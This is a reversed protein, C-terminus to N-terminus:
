TARTSTVNFVDHEVCRGDCYPGCEPKKRVVDRREGCSEDDNCLLTFINTVLPFIKDKGDRIELFLDIEFM